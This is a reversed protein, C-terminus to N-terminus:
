SVNLGEFEKMVDAINEVKIYGLYARLEESLSTLKTLDLQSAEVPKHAIKKDLLDTNDITALEDLSGEVEYIIHNYEDKIMEENPKIRKRILKPLELDIPEIHYNDINTFQIINVGYFRDEDRDFNVNMPSGPYYAPFDKYRMNMHIDGLLILKWQRLKEFDYEETIHPPIEGRIHAILVSDEEYRPLKNKQMEGYPFFQLKLWPNIEVSTNETFLKVLSNHIANHKLYGNLFSEGKKSAEHNGPIIYTPISIRNLFGNFLCTEELNPASDFIDGAIIHIDCDKEITSLKDFFQNFRSIQWEKPIKKKRLNIHWDASCIIKIM